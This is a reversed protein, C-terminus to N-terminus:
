VNAAEPEEAPEPAKAAPVRVAVAPKGVRKILGAAEWEAVEANRVSRLGGNLNAFVEGQPWFVLREGPKPLNPYPLEGIVTYVVTDINRPSLPGATESATETM